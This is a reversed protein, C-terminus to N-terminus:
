IEESKFLLALQPPTSSIHLVALIERRWCLIHVLFEEVIIIIIMMTSSNGLDQGSQQMLGDGTCEM